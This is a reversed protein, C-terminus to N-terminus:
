IINKAHFNPKYHKSLYIFLLNCTYKLKNELLCKVTFLHVKRSQVFVSIRIYQIGATCAKPETNSVCVRKTCVCM